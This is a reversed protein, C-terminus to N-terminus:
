KDTKEAKKAATKKKPAASEAAEKKSASKKVPKEDATEESIIANSRIFDIAKNVAIDQILDTESILSKVKEVEIKYSEAIKNYETELEESSATLKELDVIKELALRTKVQREAQEKFTKRFSDADMGTYQLYQDLNLGQSQMRYGFDKVLDDIRREFMVEPINGELNAIVADVLQNEMEDNALKERSELLKKRIDTKLEELTDFESVDKAFEDDLEPLEKTKIQNLKVKFVAAKGKLEESHYEDPFTVNVDFSDGISHGIIQEEFGPIFQGSGITLEHNEGKGGSFATDDVFGEFDIVTIDDNKASRDTIEVIRSNRERQRNLDNEVDEDSVSIAKKTAKLGKYKTINLEPKVFVKAKFTYGNEDVNVIEIDPADVPEIKSETVSQEYALPYTASVADEYFVGKGYMKEIISKPAKGKRFGPVNIKKVNKKYAEDVAKLFTDKDVSIELEVRNEELNNTSILAM